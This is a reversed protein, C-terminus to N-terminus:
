KIIEKIKWNYLGLEIKRLVKDLEAFESEAFIKQDPTKYICGSNKKCTFEISLGSTIDYMGLKNIVGYITSSDCIYYFERGFPIGPDFYVTDNRYETIQSFVVNGKYIIKEWKGIKKGSKYQGFFDEQNHTYHKLLKEEGQRVMLELERSYYLTRFQSVTGTINNINPLTGSLTDNNIIHYYKLSDLEKAELFGYQGYLNMSFLIFFLYTIEKKM